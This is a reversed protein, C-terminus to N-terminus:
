LAAVAAAGASSLIVARLVMFLNYLRQVQFRSLSASLFFLDNSNQNESGSIGVVRVIAISSGRPWMAM